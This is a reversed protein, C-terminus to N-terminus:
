YTALQLQHTYVRAHTYVHAHTHAHMHTNHAHVHMPTYMHTISEQLGKHHRRTCNLFANRLTDHMIEKFYSALVSSDEVGPYTHSRTYM